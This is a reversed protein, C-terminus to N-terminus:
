RTAAVSGMGHDPDQDGVVLVQDPGAEPEEEARMSPISTTPSASSPRSATRSARSSRGSTTSISTRMGRISPISAVACSAPAAPHEDERGEIEVLVDEARQAGARRAEQELVGRALRQHLRDPDDM